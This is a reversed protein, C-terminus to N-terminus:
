REVGAVNFAEDMIDLSNSSTVYTGNDDLVPASYASRFVM